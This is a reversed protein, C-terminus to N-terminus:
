NASWVTVYQNFASSCKEAFDLHGTKLGISYLQRCIFLHIQVNESTVSNENQMYALMANTEDFLSTALQLAEENKEMRFLLDIISLTSADLNVNKRIFKETIFNIVKGAREEDGRDLLHSALTSYSSKTTQLIRLQYDEHNYYIDESSMDRFMSKEM